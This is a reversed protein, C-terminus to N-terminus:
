AAPTAARKPPSCCSLRLLARAQSCRSRWPSSRSTKARRRASTGSRPRPGGRHGFLMPLATAFLLVGGSIAFAHVTVGLYSLVGRGAVLFFLAVFFAILVARAATARRKTDDAGETVATQLRLAAVVPAANIRHATLLHAIENVPTGARVTIVDPAM